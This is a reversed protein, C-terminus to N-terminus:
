DVEAVEAVQLGGYAVDALVLAVIAAAKVEAETNVAVAYSVRAFYAAVNSSEDLIGATRSSNSQAEALEYFHWCSCALAPLVLTADVVAGVGRADDVQLKSLSAKGGVFKQGPGSFIAKCIFRVGSTARYVWNVATSQIPNKPVLFNAGVQLGGGVIASIASPYIWMNEGSEESAEVADFFASFLGSVGAMGHCIVFVADATSESIPILASNNSSNADAVAFNTEVAALIPEPAASASSLSVSPLRPFQSALATFSTAGTLSRTQDDDAFPAKGEAIKYALTLPIAGAWCIIDLFSFEPIGFDSLIDSIVPIHIKTEFAALALEAMDYILDLLADVVVKVSELTTDAIIAIIQKVLEEVSMSGIDGALKSIADVSEGLVDWEQELANILVSVPNGPKPPSAPTSLFSANQANSKLHHSLLAGPASNDSAPKSTKDIPTTGDTDLGTLEGKGAWNNIAKEADDIMSNFDNKIVEIQDVQHQVFLTAINQLVEKTREIDKIEFLFELFQILDEIATKIKNFIWVIAGVVKEVCDLVAHYVQGAIKAIFHYLGTAADEVLEVIAEVGSKLWNDLDGFDMAIGEFVSEVSNAELPMAMAVTGFSSSTLHTYAKYLQKNADAVAKLNDQSIGSPVLPRTSGTVGNTIVAKQLADTTNLSAAKKFPKDMPNIAVTKGGPESVILKTGHLSNVSEIITIVGLDDTKVEIPTTDLVTFLNNIYFGARSSASIMLPANGIPQENEDTLCLRTTYSSFSVAPTNADPAPLAVHSTRWMGTEPSKTLLYLNADGDSAYITNGDNTKNVYPSAMDVGTLVPAPVSWSSADTVQDYPCSTYFLENASNLGWVTVVGNTLDAHLKSVNIFAPNDFIRVGSVPSAVMNALFYYLVGKGSGDTATVFLDTSGDPEGNPFAAMAQPQNFSSGSGPLNLLVPSAPGKGFANWLPSYMFQPTGNVSGFTFMGDIGNSKAIRGLCSSYPEGATLDIAMAHENWIPGSAGFTIYYRQVLNNADIDVVVYQGDSTEKIFVNLITFPSPAASGSTDNFPCKTWVPSILWSTNSASNGMSLYLTDSGDDTVLIAMGITENTHDQNVIQTKCKAKGGPFDKKLATSSLDHKIWGTNNGTSGNTNKHAPVEQTAYFVGDTGISFLIGNGNADQLAEFADDADMITSHLYNKMLESSYTLINKTTSSM